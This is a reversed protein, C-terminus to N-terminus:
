ATAAAAQERYFAILDTSVAKAGSQRLLTVIQGRHYSGHNALHQLTQWLPNSLETGAVTKYQLVRELDTPTLKSAYEVLARDMEELKARVAALDPFETGAPLGTHSRGFLREYWIWEAGYIHALTDRVSRFSSGMDRTFQEPTLAACADLMRRNAWRNFHYLQRIQEPTM